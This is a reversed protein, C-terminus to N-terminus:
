VQQKSPIVWLYFSAITGYPSYRSRYEEFEKKSLSDLGYLNMMGRRIGLDGWSVVDPRELAFILVMEATWVGIGNLSSLQRVVEDNSLESLKDMAIINNKVADAVGKIIRAKRFSMGCSQIDEIEINSIGEPSMDGVKAYLRGTVTQAAKGSIQQNIVASVLFAFPDPTIEREILGIREIADGLLKDNKRLHDLEMQGYKFIAM